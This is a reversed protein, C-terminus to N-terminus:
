NIPGSVGTTRPCLLLSSSKESLQRLTKSVAAASSERARAFMSPMFHETAIEELVAWQGETLGVDAALQQRRQGFAATLQQLCEIARHVPASAVVDPVDDTEAHRAPKKDREKSM